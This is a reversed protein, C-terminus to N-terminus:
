FNCHRLTNCNPVAHQLPLMATDIDGVSDDFLQTIVLVLHVDRVRDNCSCQGKVFEIM